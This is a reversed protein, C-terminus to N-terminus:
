TRGGFLLFLLELIQVNVTSHEQLTINKSPSRRLFNHLYIAALVVKTATNPELLMPKRFVRFVSSIIGFVNESVRRGRSLRYNLIRNKSYKAQIGPYPKMINKTLPFADDGLSVFPSDCTRGPLVCDVPLKIKLSTILKNLLTNQFVGGDSIRGQCGVDCYIFNYNADVVTFLVISFFGKYNFFETGTNVPTQIPVHKGDMAGVCPFEM